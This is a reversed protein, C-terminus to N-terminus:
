DGWVVHIQNGREDRLTIPGRQQNHALLSFFSDERIKYDASRAHIDLPFLSYALDRAKKTKKESRLTEFRIYWMRSPNPHRENLASVIKNIYAKSITVSVDYFSTDLLPVRSTM